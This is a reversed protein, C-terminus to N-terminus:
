ELVQLFTFILSSSWSEPGDLAFVIVPDSKLIGRIQSDGRSAM